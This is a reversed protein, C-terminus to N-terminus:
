NQKLLNQLSEFSDKALIISINKGTKDYISVNTFEGISQHEIREVASKEIVTVSDIDELSIVEVINEKGILWCKMPIYADEFFSDAEYKEAYTNWKNEKKGDTSTKPSNDTNQKTEFNQSATAQKHLPKRENYEKDTCGTTTFVLIVTLICIFSKM